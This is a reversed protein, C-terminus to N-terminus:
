GSMEREEATQIQEELEVGQRTLTQKLDESEQATSDLLRSEQATSRSALMM